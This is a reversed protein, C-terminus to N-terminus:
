IFEHRKKGIQVLGFQLYYYDSGFQSYVSLTFEAEQIKRM